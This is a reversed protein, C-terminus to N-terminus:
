EIKEFRGTLESYKLLTQLQEDRQARMEDIMPERFGPDKGPDDPLNVEKAEEQPIVRCYLTGISDLSGPPVGISDWTDQGFGVCIPGNYDVLIQRMPNVPAGFGCHSLIDKMVKGMSTNHATYFFISAGILHAVARLCRCVQKKIEPDFKNQFLDYRGGILYVPIPFLDLTSLEKHNIGVRDQSIKKLGAETSSDLCKKLATKLGNLITNTDTWLRQPESLDLMLLISLNELNHSRLPIELLEQSNIVTGLEWIHSVQKQIGQGPSSRRGYSYELALTTKSSEERDLYRNILTSKGVNPSGLIFIARERPGTLIMQSKVQDEALKIAIEQLTERQSESM